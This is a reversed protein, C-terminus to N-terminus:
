IFQPYISILSRLRAELIPKGNDVKAWKVLIELLTDFYAARPAICAM